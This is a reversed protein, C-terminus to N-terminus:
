VAPQAHIPRGGGRHFLLCCSPQERLLQASVMIHAQLTGFAAKLAAFSRHRRGGHAARQGQALQFRFCQICGDFELEGTGYAAGKLKGDILIQM